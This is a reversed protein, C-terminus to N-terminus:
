SKIQYGYQNQMTFLVDQQDKTLSFISVGGWITIIKGPYVEVMTDVGSYSRMSDNSGSDHRDFHGQPTFYYVGVPLDFKNVVSVIQLGKRVITKSIDSKLIQMGVREYM